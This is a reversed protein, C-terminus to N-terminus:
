FQELFRVDNEYVTRLDDLKLGQKMMFVREIGFGFAWGSYEESDIGGEKLVNPHVMGAGGLELWGSKCLRCKTKSDIMGSGDCIDCSVDVEFSPETFQFHYPRLRMKRGEGFFSTMFYEITGKLNTINIGRDICLGEFQHFMPTHSVDWNPRYTKAINIMAIPVGVRMMERIQGSSTHPTLVMRGYKSHSKEDIFFTEFDDRAPHGPPMNLSEFSFYEWEVEPYSARSFGIREFIRTIEEIAYTVFHLSGKPLTDGPLTPDVWTGKRPKKSLEVRKKEILTEAQAKLTNMEKGYAQKEDAPVSNIKSFLDNLIGKRSFYKSTLSDLQASTSTATLEKKLANITGEQIDSM